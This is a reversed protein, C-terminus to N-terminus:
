SALTTPDPTMTVGTTVNLTNNLHDIIYELTNAYVLSTGIRFTLTDGPEAHITTSGSGSQIIELTVAM